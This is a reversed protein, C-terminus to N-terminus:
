WEGGPYLAERNEKRIRIIRDRIKGKEVHSTFVVNDLVWELEAIRASLIGRSGM